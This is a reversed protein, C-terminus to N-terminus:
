TVWGANACDRDFEPCQALARERLKKDWASYIRDATVGPLAGFPLVGFSGTTSVGGLALAFADLRSIVKKMM